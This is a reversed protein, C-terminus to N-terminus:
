FMMMGGRPEESIEEYYVRAGEELGETIEVLLGDSIGTAVPVPGSLAGTDDIETYVFTGQADEQVSVAPLTLTGQKESTRIIVTVNMGVRMERERPLTLTVPYQVTGSGASRNGVETVFSAFSKGALADFEIIADQGKQVSLIDLENIMVKVAYTDVPIISLAAGTPDTSIVEGSADTGMGAGAVSDLMDQPIDYGMMTRMASPARAEAPSLLGYRQLVADPSDKSLGEELATAPDIPEAPPEVPTVPNDPDVPDPPPVPKKYVTVPIATGVNVIAGPALSQAIITGAMTMDPAATGNQAIQGESVAGRQLRLAELL